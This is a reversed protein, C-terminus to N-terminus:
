IADKNGTETLQLLGKAGELQIQYSQCSFCTCIYMQSYWYVSLGPLEPILSLVDASM